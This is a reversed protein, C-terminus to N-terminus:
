ASDVEGDNDDSWEEDVFRETTVMDVVASEAASGRAIGKDATDVIQLHEEILEYQRAYM